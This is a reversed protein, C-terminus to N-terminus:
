DATFIKGIEHAWEKIKDWDRNDIQFEPLRTLLAQSAIKPLKKKPVRGGFAAKAVFNVESYESIVDELFNKFAHNYLEKEGAFSSSIFVAVKKGTLDKTLFKESNKTWKGNEIGSALIINDFEELDPCARYNELDWIEVQIKYDKELIKQIVACAEPTAGYRTGYVILTENM